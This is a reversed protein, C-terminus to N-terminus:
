IRKLLEISEFDIRRVKRDNKFYIECALEFFVAKQIVDDFDEGLVFIGNNPLIIINNKASSDIIQNKQKYSYPLEFKDLLCIEGINIPVEPITYFDNTSLCPTCAISTANISKYHLVVDIDHRKEYLELHIDKEFTPKAGEFEETGFDYYSLDDERIKEMWTGNGTLVVKMPNYKWSANGNSCYTLKRKAVDKCFEIFAESFPNNIM